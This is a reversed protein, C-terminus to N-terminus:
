LPLCVVLKKLDTDPEVLSGNSNRWKIGYQTHIFHEGPVDEEMLNDMAQAAVVNQIQRKLSDGVGHLANPGISVVTTPIVAYTIAAPFCLLETMDKDYLCNSYSAYFPNKESVTISKLNILNRFAGSSIETVDSGIHVATIETCNTFSNADIVEPSSAYSKINPLLVIIASLLAM